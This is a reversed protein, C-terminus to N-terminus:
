RTLLAMWLGLGLIATLLTRLVVVGVKMAVGGPQLGSVRIRLTTFWM